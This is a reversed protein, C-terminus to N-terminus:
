RKIVCAHCASSLGRTGLRLRPVVPARANVNADVHKKKKKKESLFEIIGHFSCGTSTSLIAELTLAM